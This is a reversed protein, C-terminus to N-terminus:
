QLALIESSSGKKPKIKKRRNEYIKSMEVRMHALFGLMLVCHVDTDHNIKFRFVVFM